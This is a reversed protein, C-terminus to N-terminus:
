KLFEEVEVLYEKQCEFHVNHGCNKVNVIKFTTNYKQIRFAINSFKEDKEGALILIENQLSVLRNWLSPQRGLGMGRLAAPWNNNSFNQRRAVLEEFGPHERLSHFLPMSYWKRLFIEVRSNEIEKALIEDQQLRLDKEAKNSLGPNVSELVVKGFFDPYRTVMFLALRAGMSYGVLHCTKIDRNLLYNTLSKATNPLTYDTRRTVNTSGHGPLDILLCRYSSALKQSIELWDQFSGLFGHLFLIVPDAPNGITKTNWNIM